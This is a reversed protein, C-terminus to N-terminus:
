LFIFALLNVCFTAYIIFNMYFLLSMRQWKLYLFSTILPHNLLHRYEKLNAILLIPSMEEKIDLNNNPPILNKFDIIIEFDDNFKKGYTSICSDMQEELLEPDMETIAYHYNESKAGIYAGERMLEKAYKDDRLQVAHHLPTTGYKDTENVDIKPSGILIYFCKQYDSFTTHLKIHYNNNESYTIVSGLLCELTSVKLPKNNILKELAYANGISTAVFISSNGNYKANIDSTSGLIKDFAKNQGHRIAELLLIINEESSIDKCSELADFFKGENENSLYTLLANFEKSFKNVPISIQPFNTSLLQRAEGDRFTDM